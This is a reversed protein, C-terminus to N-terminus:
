MILPGNQESIFEIVTLSPDYSQSSRLKDMLDSIDRDSSAVVQCGSVGVWHKNFERVLAGYNEHLWAHDQEYRTFSAPDQPGNM